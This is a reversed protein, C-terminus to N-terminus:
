DNNNVRANEIIEGLFLMALSSKAALLTTSIEM